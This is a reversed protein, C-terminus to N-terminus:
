RSDGALAAMIELSQGSVPKRDRLPHLRLVVRRPDRVFEVEVANGGVPFIRESSEDGQHVRRRLKQERWLYIIHDGTNMQLILTDMDAGYQEWQDPAKEAQAVDTRFQDALANNQLLKDFSEAQVRELKITELLLVTLVTGALVILVMVCMLEILTFGHRRRLAPMTM